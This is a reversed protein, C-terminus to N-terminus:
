SVVGEDISAALLDQLVEGLEAPNLQYASSFFRRLSHCVCLWACRFLDFYVLRSFLLDVVGVIGYRSNVCGNCSRRAPCLSDLGADGEGHPFLQTYFRIVRASRDPM